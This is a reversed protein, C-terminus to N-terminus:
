KTVIDHQMPALKALLKNQARSSVGNKEMALQLDEALANFEANRIGMGDHVTKMDKGSYMAPGGTLQNIQEKLLLGLRDVDADALRQSIRPDAQWILLFDDVVKSIGAKGGFSQFVEESVESNIAASQAFSVNVLAATLCVALLTTVTRNM